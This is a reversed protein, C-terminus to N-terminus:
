YNHTVKHMQNAKVLMAQSAHTLIFAKTQVMMEKAMDVDLIRSEAATLNVASTRVRSYVLLM